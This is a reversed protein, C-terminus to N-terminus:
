RRVVVMRKVTVAKGKPAPRFGVRLGLKLKGNRRLAARGERTLKATISAQTASKLTRSTKRILKGGSVTLKGAGLNDIQLTVAKSTTKVRKVKPKCGEFKGQTTWRKSEGNQGTFRGQITKDRDCAGPKGSVVLIGHKGGNIKLSFATIPADPINAFTTVLRQISDVSSSADVDITVGDASLPIWLKPLTKVTRGTKTKRLGEVFYVPGTLPHPLISKATATGVISAKPCNLALRQLPKCLQQANDPDLALSLPLKVEVKDLNAGGGPDTLTAQVGPHQGDTTARKGTFKLALKQKLELDGCGGPRFLVSQRSTAGGLATFMGTVNAASCDTPNFMFKPRDIKVTVQRLRLPIGQIITPLPDSKVTVNAKRDVYIGARVVVVGLDFPGAQGATPVAISLGFPANQGTAPNNYPGTLYVNGTLALPQGGPGSLVSTTGIKSDAPCAGAAAPGAACQTV